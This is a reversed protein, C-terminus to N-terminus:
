VPWGGTFAWFVVAGTWAWFPDAGMAWLLWSLTYLLAGAVTVRLAVLVACTM